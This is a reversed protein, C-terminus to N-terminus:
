RRRRWRSTGRWAPTPSSTTSADTGSLTAGSCSAPALAYSGAPLTPAIISDGGRYLELKGHQGHRRISPQGHGRLRSDGTTRAARSPSTSPAPTVTFDNRRVRTSSTYDALTPVASVHSRQLLLRAAHVGSPWRPVSPPPPDLTPAASAPPASPSASPAAGSGAYNATASFTPSGGYVQTGPRRRRRPPDHHPRDGAGVGRPDGAGDGHRVRDHRPVTATPLTTTTTAPPSTTSTPARPSSRWSTSPPNLAGYGATNGDASAVVALVAAWLPAAGSTGGLRGAARQRRLHRLRHEPRRRGVRRPGRPLRRVLQRVADRQQREGHGAGAPVGAHHVDQLDRRRRRGRLLLAADNWLPRRRRRGSRRTGHGLSTGGVATVYPQSAPDSVALNLNQIVDGGNTQDTVWVYDRTGDSVLQGM